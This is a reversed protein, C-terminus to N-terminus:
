GYLNRSYHTQWQGKHKQTMQINLQVNHLTILPLHARAVYNSRRGMASYQLMQKPLM